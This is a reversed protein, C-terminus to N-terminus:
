RLAEVIRGGGLVEDGRYFVVSQGPAVARQPARFEVRARAGDLPHVVAPAPRSRYRIQVDAEFPGGEPPEGAVWSVRDAVLGRRALLEAPGVVVRNAERDLDVVYLRA